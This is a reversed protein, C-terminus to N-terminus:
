SSFSRGYSSRRRSTSRCSTGFGGRAAPEVAIREASTIGSWSRGPGPDSSNCASPRGKVMRYVPGRVIQGGLGAAATAGVDDCQSVNYDRACAERSAYVNRHFTGSDGCAALGTAMLSGTGVLALRVHRSRRRPPADTM